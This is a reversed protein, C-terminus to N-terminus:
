WLAGVVAASIPRPSVASGAGASEPVFASAAAMDGCVAGFGLAACAVTAGGLAEGVCAVGVLGRTVFKEPELTVDIPLPLDIPKPPPPKGIKARSTAATITMAATAIGIAATVCEVCEIL